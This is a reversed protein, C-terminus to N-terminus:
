SQETFSELKKVLEDAREHVAKWALSVRDSGKHAGPPAGSCRNEIGCEAFPITVRM